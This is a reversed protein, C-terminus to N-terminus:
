NQAFFNLFISPIYKQTNKWYKDVKTPMPTTSFQVCNASNFTAVAEAPLVTVLQGDGTTTMPDMTTEAVEGCSKAVWGSNDFALIQNMYFIDIQCTESLCLDDDPCLAGTSSSNTFQVQYLDDGSPRVECDAGATTSCHRATAWQKCILDLQDAVTPGGLSSHDISPNLKACWCGHNLINNTYNTDAIHYNFLQGTADTFRYNFSVSQQVNRFYKASVVSLLINKSWM